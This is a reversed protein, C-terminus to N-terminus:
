QRDRRQLICDGCFCFRQRKFNITTEWTGLVIVLVYYTSLIISHAFLHNLPVPGENGEKGPWRGKQPRKPLWLLCSTWRSEKRKRKRAGPIGRWKRTGIRLREGQWERKLPQGESPWLQPTSLVRLAEWDVWVQELCEQEGGSEALGTDKRDKSELLFHPCQERVLGRSHWRREDCEESMYSLSVQPRLRKASSSISSGHLLLAQRFNPLVAAQALIGRVQLVHIGM